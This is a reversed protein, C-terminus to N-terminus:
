YNPQFCRVTKKFAKLPDTLHEFVHFATVVDMKGKCEYNEWGCNQVDLGKKAWDSFFEWRDDWGRKHSSLNAVM